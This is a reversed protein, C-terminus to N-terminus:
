GAIFVHPLISRWSEDSSACMDDDLPTMETQPWTLCAVRDQVPNSPARDVPGQV